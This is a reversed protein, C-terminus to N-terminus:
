NEEIYHELDMNMQTILVDDFVDRIVVCGKKKVESILDRLNLKLDNFKVEPIINKNNKNLEEINFIEDTIFKEIELFNEVYNKSKNKLYNKEQIIIEEINDLDIM